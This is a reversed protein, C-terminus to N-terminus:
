CILGPRGGPTTRATLLLRGAQGPPQAAGPRGIV